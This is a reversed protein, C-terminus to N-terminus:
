ETVEIAVNKGQLAAAASVISRLSRITQGNKGIIRGRDEPHVTVEYITAKEGKLERIDVDDPREVLARTVYSILEVM